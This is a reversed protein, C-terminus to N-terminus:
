PLLRVPFSAAWMVHGDEASLSRYVLVGPTEEGPPDFTIEGEFPGAPPSGSGTVFGEGLPESGGQALVVVDVQGEFALATGRTTFPSTLDAGATPEQVEIDANTSGLVYWAQDEMQRVLVTTEPGGPRDTVPVEGSRADGQRFEGVELETFGLVDTAYARAVADPSEYSQSTTPDPFAVGFRDVLPTFATTTTTAETTTTTEETTTTTEDVATTSTASAVDTEDDDDGLVVVALVVLIVAAAASLGGIIWRNRTTTSPDENM